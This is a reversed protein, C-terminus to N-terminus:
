HANVTKRRRTGPTPDTIAQATIFPPYPHKNTLLQFFLRSFSQFAGSPTIEDYPMWKGLERPLHKVEETWKQLDAPNILNHEEARLVLFGQQDFHAIQEPVLQTPAM